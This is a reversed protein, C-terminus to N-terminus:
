NERVFLDKSDQYSDDTIRLLDVITGLLFLNVTLFKVIGSGIRGLYFDHIGGLGLFGLCCLWITTKKSKPSTMSDYEAQREALEEEFEAERRAEELERRARLRGREYDYGAQEMDDYKVHKVEDDLKYKSGCAKCNVSTKDEEVKLIAGCNKCKLELLKM